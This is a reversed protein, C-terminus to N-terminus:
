AIDQGGPLKHLLAAQSALRIIPRCHARTEEDLSAFLPANSRISADMKIECLSVFKKTMEADFGAGEIDKLFM